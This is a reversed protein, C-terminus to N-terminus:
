VSSTVVPQVSLRARQISLMAMLLRITIQIRWFRDHLVPLVFPLTSASFCYVLTLSQMDCGVQINICSPTSRLIRALIGQCLGTKLHGFLPLQVMETRCALVLRGGAPM